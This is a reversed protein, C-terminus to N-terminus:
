GWNLTSTYVMGMSVVGVKDAMGSASSGDGESRRPGLRAAQTAMPNM